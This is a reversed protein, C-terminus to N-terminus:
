LRLVATIEEPDASTQVVFGFRNALGRMGANDPLIHAVISEFKEDRAVDILRRVLETGLGRHQVRDAVLVALEGRRVNRDRTLRGVALIERAGTAADTGEAVLAMERDYDIFCKRLLREHAVRSSLNEMHFYRLYVTQDSLSEHLRALLPEDEPRIPRILIGPGNEMQWHSVYQAPYPRIAARPLASDALAQDFLVIRADLALLGDPSALIPNIDIEKIRPLEVPIYSFRVLLSELRQLDVPKRGRVGQLAKYIKTQEMLRQALTTNLPPLGLARDRYVEVLQGGSGFLLVPGFEPDVSSGLILEYGDFRVMPQVTVGQFSETGAKATVASEIAGYAERVADPTQLDLKVGGVDTKHTIKYSHLKLVVPFGIERAAAVAEEASRALKTPTTPIDYLSLIQKSELETLITRGQASISALMERAKRAREQAVAPDDAIAPTEYLGRLHYTYQWMYEFARVATDPYDFTPIGAANLIARGKEIATAGMWSALVPKGHGKAYHSLREAVSAPDTMGQPALIALLGDSGPDQIAIELARAYREPDADGLIDVPNGHSWHPPLLNDFGRRSEESLTALEGGCAILADTALVAPGGANTLIMLRPGRPRPQKSLVEAMDFVESISQVRLVGCRRLAADFVEDSGTLAGTHSAAAKSAAESRGAKILIIPKTMAVARAASMFSRADGISEMYILISHTEPDSGFYDILDGWGVDLMSGTSVFSSFGVKERLSWDLIATLLAGSQSLFAVNGQRAITQAFTANLGILPNMIGLCNPGILRLRNHELQESIKRELAQGEAGLERFGASIVVAAKVGADICEGVIGPVTAAPTVIIALDVKGPVQGITAHSAHGLVVPHKPNVPYVNGRFPSNILNAFTTRGVTGERETAGIVAVSRPQFFASLTRPGVGRIYRPRAQVDPPPAERSM